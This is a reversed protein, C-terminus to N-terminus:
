LEECPPLKKDDLKISNKLLGLGNDLEKEAQTLHAFAEPHRAAIGNAYFAMLQVFQNRVAYLGGFSLLEKQTISSRQKKKKDAEAKKAKPNNAAAVSGNASAAAQAQAALLAPRTDGSRTQLGFYITDDNTKASPRRMFAAQSSMWEEVKEQEVGFKTAISESSRWLKDSENLFQTVLREFTNSGVEQPPSIVPLAEGAGAAVAQVAAQVAAEAASSPAGSTTDEANADAEAVATAEAEQSADSPKNMELEELPTLRYFFIGPELGERCSLAPNTDAWKEFNRQDVKFYTALQGSTIWTLGQQICFTLTKKVERDFDPTGIKSQVAVPHAIVTLEEAPCLLPDTADNNDFSDFRDIGTHPITPMKTKPWQLSRNKLSQKYLYRIPVSFEALDPNDIHFSDAPIAEYRNFDIFIRAKGCTSAANRIENWLFINCMEVDNSVSIVENYLRRLYENAFSKFGLRNKVKRSKKYLFILPAVWDKMVAHHIRSNWNYKPNSFKNFSRISFFVKSTNTHITADRFEDWMKFDIDQWRKRGPAVIMDWFQCLYRHAWTMFASDTKSRVMERPIISPNQRYLYRLPQLFASLAEHLVDVQCETKHIEWLWDWDDMDPYCIGRKRCAEGLIEELKWEDISAEECLQRLFRNAWNLFNFDQECIPRIISM